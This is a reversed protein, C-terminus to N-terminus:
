FQQDQGNNMAKSLQLQDSLLAAAQSLDQFAVAMKHGAQELEMLEAKATRLQERISQGAPKASYVPIRKRKRKQKM